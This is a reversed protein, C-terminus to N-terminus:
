ATEGKIYAVEAATLKGATLRESLAADTIAGESYLRKMSDLARQIM